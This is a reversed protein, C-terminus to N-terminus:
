TANLAMVLLDFQEENFVDDMMVYMADFEGLPLYGYVYARKGKGIAYGAELHASKGCPLMVVVIEAEDLKKWNLIGINRIDPQLLATRHNVRNVLKNERIKVGLKYTPEQEDCFCYVKHGADRLRQAFARVAVQHAFSGAVYINKGMIILAEVVEVLLFDAM